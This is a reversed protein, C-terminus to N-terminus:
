QGSRGRGEMGEAGGMEKGERHNIKGETRGVGGADGSM